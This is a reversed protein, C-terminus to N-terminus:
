ISDLDDVHEWQANGKWLEMQPTAVLIDAVPDDFLAIALNSEPSTKAFNESLEKLQMIQKHTIIATYGGYKNFLDRKGMDFCQKPNPIGKFSPNAKKTQYCKAVASYANIKSIMM